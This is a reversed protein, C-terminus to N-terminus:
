REVGLAHERIWHDWTVGDPKAELCLEKTEPKICLEATAERAM